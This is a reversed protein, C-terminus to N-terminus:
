VLQPPQSADQPLVINVKDGVPDEVPAVVLRLAGNWAGAKLKLWIQPIGYPQPFDNIFGQGAKPQVDQVSLVGDSNVAIPVGMAACDEGGGYSQLGYASMSCWLTWQVNSLPNAANGLYASFKDTSMNHIAYSPIPIALGNDDYLWDLYGGVDLRGAGYTQGVIIVPTSVLFLTTSNTAYGNEGSNGSRATITVAAPNNSQMLANLKQGVPSQYLGTESIYGVNEDGGPIGNVEWVVPYSLNRSTKFFQFSKGQNIETENIFNLAVEGDPTVDILPTPELNITVEETNSWASQQVTATGSVAEPAGGGVPTHSASVTFVGKVSDFPVEVSAYGGIVNIATSGATAYGVDLGSPLPPTTLSLVSFTAQLNAPGEYDQGNLRIHLKMMRTTRLYDCNWWSFHSVTVQMALGTPSDPAAVVIGKLEETWKGTASNMSWAPVEDGVKLVAGDPNRAAYLPVTVTATQGSKLQLKQGGQVFSFDVMGMSVMIGNNPQMPNGPFGAPNAAANYPTIQVEVAGTVPKGDSTVFSNAGVVVKAGDPGAFAGGQEFSAASQRSAIPLLTAFFNGGQKGLNLPMVQDVYGAKSLQVVVDGDPVSVAALDGKADTRGQALLNTGGADFVKVAVDSGISDGQNSSADVHGTLSVPQVVVPPETGGGGGGGGGGGDDDDDNGGCGSLSVFLCLMLMGLWSQFKRMSYISFM